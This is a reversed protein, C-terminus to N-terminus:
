FTFLLIPCLLFGALSLPSPHNVISASSISIRFLIGVSFTTLQLASHYAVHVHVYTQIIKFYQSTIPRLYIALSWNHKLLQTVLKAIETVREVQLNQGPDSM